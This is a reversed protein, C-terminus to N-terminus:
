KSAVTDGILDASVSVQDGSREFAYTVHTLGPLGFSVDDGDMLGMEIRAPAFPAQTDAYTAIVHYHDGKDAFYVVMDIGGEHVSAAQMPTNLTITDAAASTAMIAAIAASILTTKM